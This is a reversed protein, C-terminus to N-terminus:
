RGAMQFRWGLDSDLHWDSDLDADSGLDRASEEDWGWALGADLDMATAWGKPKVPLIRDAM